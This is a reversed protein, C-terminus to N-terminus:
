QGAPVELVTITLSERGGQLSAEIKKSTSDAPIVLEGAGLEGALVGPFIGTRATGGGARCEIQGTPEDDFQIHHIKMSGSVSDVLAYLVWRQKVSATGTCNRPLTMSIPRDLSHQGQYFGPKDDGAPLLEVEFQAESWESSPLGGPVDLRWTHHIGLKIRPAVCGCEPSATYGDGLLDVWKRAKAVLDAQSGPPKAIVVNNEALDEASLARDGNFAAEIFQIENHDTELHDVFADGTREFRKMARCIDEDSKGDWLMPLPAVLWGTLHTGDLRTLSGRINSHCNDCGEHLRRREDATLLARPDLGSSRAFDSGEHQESMIDFAGHCNICRPHRFVPMLEAFAKVAQLQKGVSLPCSPASRPLPAPVPATSTSGSLLVIGVTGLALSYPVLTLPRVPSGM